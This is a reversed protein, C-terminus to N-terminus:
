LKRVMEGVQNLFTTRQEYTTNDMDYLGIWAVTAAPSLIPRIANAIMRRGNDGSLTVIPYPAGYTSVGVIQTINTLKPILGTSSLTGDAQPKPLSWAIDHVLTRDFFGKVAAPTNMWWTPYVFVLTDCWLLLKLHEKVEKALTRQDINDGIDHQLRHEDKTFKPNYGYRVDNSASYLSIRRIEHGAQKASEELQNAIAASFSHIPDPHAHVMLIRRRAGVDLPPPPPVYSTLQNLKAQLQRVGPIQYILSEEVM